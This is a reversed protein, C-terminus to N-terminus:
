LDDAEVTANVLVGWREDRQGRRTGESALLTPQGHDAQALQHLADLDLDTRVLELLWGLRRAEARSRKKALAAMRAGDLDPLEALITAVNALGGAVRPRSALDVACLDPTAVKIMTRPGAVRRVADTDIKTSTYFRLRVREIDRDLVTRDTVVQFEQPAQHAAGWWQAASAFAVYCDVGLHRMMPDVFHAAPVVGWSRHDPPVIVYLGRAPSFLRERDIAYKVAGYIANRTAGTRDELEAATFSSKGEALLQDWLETFNVQNV